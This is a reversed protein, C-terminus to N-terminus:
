IGLCLWRKGLCSVPFDACGDVALFLCHVGSTNIHLEFTATAQKGPEGLSTRVFLTDADTAQASLYMVQLMVLVIGLFLIKIIKMDCDGQHAINLLPAAGPGAGNPVPGTM